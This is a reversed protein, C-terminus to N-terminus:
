QHCHPARNRAIKEDMEMDGPARIVQLVFSSDPQRPKITRSFLFDQLDDHIALHSMHVSPRDPTEKDPAFTVDSHELAIENM